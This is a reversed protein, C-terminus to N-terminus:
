RGQHRGRPATFRRWARKVAMEVLIIGVYIPGMVKLEHWSLLEHWSPWRLALAQVHGTTVAVGSSGGLRVDVM